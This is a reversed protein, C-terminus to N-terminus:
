RQLPVAPRAPKRQPAILVLAPYTVLAIAVHMLVLIGVAVAPQGKYLIWADPALGGLTVLVTLVLFPKRASTSFWTVIPWAACAVVVGIVTLKTYDAFRFHDYGATAPFLAVGLAALAACAAVSGAVAVITAVIWRAAAPQHGGGPFDLGLARAARTGSLSSSQPPM